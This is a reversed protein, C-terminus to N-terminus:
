GMVGRVTLAVAEPWTPWSARMIQLAGADLSAPTVLEDVRM